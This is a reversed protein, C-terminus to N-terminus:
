KAKRFQVGVVSYDVYKIGEKDIVAGPMNEVEDAMVGIWKTGQGKYNFEYVNIGNEIGHLKINEKLRRDSGVMTTAAQAGSGYVDAGIQGVQSLAQLQANRKAIDDQRQNYFYDQRAQGLAREIEMQKQFNLNQATQFPQGASGLMNFYNMALQERERRVAENQAALGLSFKTSNANMVSNLYPSLSSGASNKANEVGMNSAQAFDTTILNREADSLGRKAANSTRLWEKAANEYYNQGQPTVSAVSNPSQEAEAISKEIDVLKTLNAVEDAIRSNQKDIKNEERKSTTWADHAAWLPNVTAKAVQGADVKEREKNWGFLAM